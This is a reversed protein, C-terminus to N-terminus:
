RVSFQQLPAESRHAGATHRGARAELRFATVAHFPKMQMDHDFAQRVCDPEMGAQEILRRATTSRAVGIPAHILRGEIKRGRDGVPRGTQSVEAKLDFARGFQGRNIARQM